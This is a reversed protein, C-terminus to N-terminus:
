TIGLVFQRFADVGGPCPTGGQGRPPQSGEGRWPVEDKVLHPNGDRLGALPGQGKVGATRQRGQVWACLAQRGRYEQGFFSVEVAQATETLEEPESHEKQRM